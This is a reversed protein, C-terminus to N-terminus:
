VSCSTASTAQHFIAASGQRSIWASSNSLVARFALHDVLMLIWLRVKFSDTFSSARQHPVGKPKISIPNTSLYSGVESEEKVNIAAGSLRRKEYDYDLRQMDRLTPSSVSPKFNGPEVDISPGSPMRSKRVSSGFQSSILSSNKSETTKLVKAIKVETDGVSGTNKIPSFLAEDYRDCLADTFKVEVTEPSVSVEPTALLPAGGDEPVVAGHYLPFHLKKCASSKATLDLNPISIHTTSDPVGM